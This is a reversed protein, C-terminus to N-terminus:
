ELIGMILRTIASTGLIDVWYDETSLKQINRQRMEGMTLDREFLSYKDFGEIDDKQHIFDKDILQM